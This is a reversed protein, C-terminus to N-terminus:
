EVVLRRVASDNGVQVQLAYVGPALGTLDLAHRRGAAPLKVAEVRLTRGLADRLTLTATPSSPSGALQITAVSHAPNPYLSMGFGAGSAVTTLTADTLTAVYTAFNGMNSLTFSGFDGVRGNFFGAVYLKNGRMTTAYAGQYGTGMVQQTWDFAATAGNDLLKAVYLDSLNNNCSLVYSGFDASSSNFLGSVFLSNGSVELGYARDDGSGGARRAWIFGATNGVETLKAVFVDSIVAGGSPGNASILTTSGCTFDAGSFVGAVYINQGSLRVAVPLDSGGGGAQRVWSWTSTAGADTLKAVFVDRDYPQQNSNNLTTSGFQVGNGSFGGAVYVASGAVALATAEDAYSGGARQAWEFRGAGNADTFKAIFVDTSGASNAVAVQGFSATSGSFYGALFLSGGSTVLANVADVGTGGVRLAWTFGTSAGTDTLKALYGDRGLFPPSVTDLLTLATAGFQATPSDFYGAIYVDTGHVAIAQARDYGAGGAQRAWAFGNTAPSWKAVFIDEGGQSTLTTGGVTVTGIFYGAIYVNGIADTTTAHASIGSSGTAGVFLSLQWDPALAQAQAVPGTLTLLIVVVLQWGHFLAFFHKM